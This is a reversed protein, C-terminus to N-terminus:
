RHLVLTTNDSITCSFWCCSSLGQSRRGLLADSFCVSFIAKQVQASALVFHLGVPVLLFQALLRRDVAQQQQQQQQEKLM